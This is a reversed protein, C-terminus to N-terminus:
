ASFDFKFTAPFTAHNVLKDLNHIFWANYGIEFGGAAPTLANTGNQAFVLQRKLITIDDIIGELALLHDLLAALHEARTDLDVPLHERVDATLFDLSVQKGITQDLGVAAACVSWGVLRARVLHM